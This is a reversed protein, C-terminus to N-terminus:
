YLSLLLQPSDPFIIVRNQTSVFEVPICEFQITQRM